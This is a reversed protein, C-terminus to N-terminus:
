ERTLSVKTGVRIRGGRIVLANQGLYVKNERKRFAALVRLVKRDVVGTQPDTDVIVCRACPHVGRLRVSGIALQAPEEEEFPALGRVVINPRYREVPLVEGARRSVEGMSADGLVLVPFGDAFSVVDKRGAYKQDAPRWVTDPMYVLRTKKGLYDSFFGQDPVLRAKVADDWVTVSARELSPANPVLPVVLPETRHPGAIRLGGRSVRVRLQSLEPRERQSIFRGGEDVLMFRRDHRLGRPECQTERVSLGPLSKVPYVYLASVFVRGDTVSPRTTM